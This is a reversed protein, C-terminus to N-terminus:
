GEDYWVLPGAEIWRRYFVRTIPPQLERADHFQGETFTPGPSSRSPLSFVKITPPPVEPVDIVRTDGDKSMLYAKM